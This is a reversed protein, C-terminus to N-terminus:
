LFIKVIKSYTMINKAKDVLTEWQELIDKAFIKPRTSEEKQCKWSKEWFGITETRGLILNQFLFYNTM